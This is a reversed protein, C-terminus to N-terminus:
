RPRSRRRADHPRWVSLPQFTVAGRVLAIRCTNSCRPRALDDGSLAAFRLRHESEAIRSPPRSTRPMSNASFILFCCNLRLGSVPFAVVAGSSQAATKAAYLRLLGSALGFCVSLLIQVLVRVLVRNCTITQQLYTCPSERQRWHWRRRGGWLTLSCNALASPTGLYCIATM